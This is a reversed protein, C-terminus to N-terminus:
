DAVSKTLAFDICKKFFNKSCITHMISNMYPYELKSIFKTIM